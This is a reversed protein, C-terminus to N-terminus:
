SPRPRRKPPSRQPNPRCGGSNWPVREITLSFRVCHRYPKRYVCRDAPRADSVMDCWDVEGVVLNTQPDYAPGNWEVGEWRAQASISPRETAFPERRHHLLYEHRAARCTLIQVAVPKWISLSHTDSKETFAYFRM